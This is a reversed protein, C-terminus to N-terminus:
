RGVGDDAVPAGFSRRHQNKNESISASQIQNTEFMEMLFLPSQMQRFIDGVLENTKELTKKNLQMEICTIKHKLLKPIVSKDALSEGNAVGLTVGNLAGNKSPGRGRGQRPKCHKSRTVQIM